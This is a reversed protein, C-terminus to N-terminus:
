KKNKAKYGLVLFVVGLVVFAVQIVVFMVDDSTMGLSGFNYYTDNAISGLVSLAGLIALIWGAIRYGKGTKPKAPIQPAPAYAPAAPPAYTYTPQQVPTEAVPQAVPQAIPAADTLIEQKTGCSNCFKANDALQKGCESCFM